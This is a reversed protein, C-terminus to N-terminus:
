AQLGAAELRNAWGFTAASQILDLCELESLGVDVLAKLAVATAEPPTTSLLASFDFIAQLHEDLAAEFLQRYTTPIKAETACSDHRCAVAGIEDCRGRRAVDTRL